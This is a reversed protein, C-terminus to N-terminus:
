RECTPAWESIVRIAEQLLTTSTAVQTVPQLTCCELLNLLEGFYRDVQIQGWKERVGLGGVEVERGTAAQTM